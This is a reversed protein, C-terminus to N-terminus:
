TPLPFNYAPHQTPLRSITLMQGILAGGFQEPMNEEVLYFYRTGMDVWIDESRADPVPFLNIRAKQVQEPGTTEKATKNTIHPVSGKHWDARMAVAPYYGGTIGTGYCTSCTSSVPTNLIEDCCVPCKAGVIKRRLLWGPSCPTKAFFLYKRRLVDRYRLYDRRAMKGHANMAVSTAVVSAGNKVQIKFWSHTQMNQLQVGLNLAFLDSTVGGVATFTGDFTEASLVQFTPAFTAGVIQWYVDYGGTPAQGFHPIVTISRFAVGM